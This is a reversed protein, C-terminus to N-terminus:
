CLHTAGFDDLYVDYVWGELNTGSLRLHTWTNGYSNVVYCHYYLLASNSVYFVVPCDGYPGNHVPTSGQTGHGSGGDKNSWAPHTCVDTTAQSSGAGVLLGGLVLVMAAIARLLRSWAGIRRDV